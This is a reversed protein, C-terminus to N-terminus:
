DEGEEEAVVFENYFTKANEFVEQWKVRDQICKPLNNVNVNRLDEIMYNKWRFKPRGTLRASIPKASM